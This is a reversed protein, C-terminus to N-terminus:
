SLKELLPLMALCCRWRLMKRCALMCHTLMAVPKVECAEARLFLPSCSSVTVLVMRQELWVLERHM